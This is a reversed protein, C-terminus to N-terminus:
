EVPIFGFGNADAFTQAAGNAPGLLIIGPLNERNGFALADIQTTASPIYVATLNPCGAFANAQITVTKTSLAAFRFASGAFAEGEVMTLEDPATLDPKGWVAYLTMSETPTISGGPLYAAVAANQTMGWGLFFWGTRAPVAAPLQIPQNLEISLRGPGGTGGSADFSLADGYEEGNLLYIGQGLSQEVQNGSVYTYKTLHETTGEKVFFTESDDEAIFNYRLNFQATSNNVIKRVHFMGTFATRSSSALSSPITLIGSIGPCGFSSSAIDTLGEPLTLSGTFGCQYFAADCVRTLTDPLNLTGTMGTCGKFASDYITTLGAPLELGTFGSCNNFVFGNIVTLGSPLMLTGTFGSCDSFASSGITTVSEPITLSGTMGSCGYFEQAGITTIGEAIQLGTFGSCQYFTRTGRTAATCNLSLTGNFGSCGRFADTGISTIAAPIILDGTFGSCNQFAYSQIETVNEPIVLQGTFGCGSFASLGIKTIGSGLHLSGTLGTCGKFSSSGVSTVSDPITLDGTLGTCSLFANEAITHIGESITISTINKNGNFSSIETVYFTKPPDGNQVLSIGDGPKVIIRAPIFVPGSLSSSSKCGITCHDDTYFAVNYLGKIDSYYVTDQPLDDDALAIGAALIFLLGALLTIGFYRRTNRRKMDTKVLRVERINM